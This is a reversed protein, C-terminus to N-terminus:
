IQQIYKILDKPSWTDINNQNIRKAFKESAEEISSAIVEDEYDPADAHSKIYIEFTKM